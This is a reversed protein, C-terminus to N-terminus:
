GEMEIQRAQDRGGVLEVAENYVEWEEVDDRFRELAGTLDDAASSIAFRMDESAVDFDETGIIMLFCRPVATNFYFNNIIDSAAVEKHEASRRFIYAKAQEVTKPRQSEPM